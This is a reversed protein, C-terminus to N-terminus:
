TLVVVSQRVTVLTDLRVLKAATVVLLTTALPLRTVAVMTRLVSMLIQADVLPTEMVLIDQPALVAVTDVM